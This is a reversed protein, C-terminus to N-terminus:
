FSCPIIRKYRIAAPNDLPSGPFGVAFKGILSAGNTEQSQAVGEMSFIMRISEYTSGMFFDHYDAVM